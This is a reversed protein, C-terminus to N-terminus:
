PLPNASFTVSSDDLAFYPRGKLFESYSPIRLGSRSSNVFGMFSCIIRGILNPRGFHLTVFTRFLEYKQPRLGITIGLFEKTPPSRTKDDPWYNIIMADITGDKKATSLEQQLELAAPQESFNALVHLGVLDCESINTVSLESILQSFSGGIEARCHGYWKWQDTKGISAKGISAELDSLNFTFVAIM